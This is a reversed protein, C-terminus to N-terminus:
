FTVHRCTFTYGYLIGLINRVLQHGNKTYFTNQNQIRTFIPVVFIVEFCLEVGPVVCKAVITPLPCTLLDWVM